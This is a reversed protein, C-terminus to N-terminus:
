YINDDSDLAYVPILYTVSIGLALLSCLVWMILYHIIVRKHIADVLKTAIKSKMNMLICIDVLICLIAFVSGVGLVLGVVLLAKNLIALICSLVSLGVTACLAILVREINFSNWDSQDTFSLNNKSCKVEQVLREYLLNVAYAEDTGQYRIMHNGSVDNRYVVFWGNESYVGFAGPVYCNIGIYFGLKEIDFIGNVFCWSKLHELTKPKRDENTRIHVNNGGCNPCKSLESDIYSDCYACKVKM